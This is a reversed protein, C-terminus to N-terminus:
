GMRTRVDALDEPTDIGGPATDVVLAVIKMGDELARLQELKEAHELPSPALDVFRALAARRWAYIGVHHWIPIASGVAGGHPIPYRSFYLVPASVGPAPEQEGFAIAAKVVQPKDVEDDSALAVPTAIDADHHVLAQVLPRLMAADIDPLDGQLNVVIDIAGDPDIKQLAEYVRDSGSPHNPNTLVAIGGMGSVATEATVADAVRQDDCAVVVQGGNAGFGAELARRMVHVIMPADGIMALPKEPLRTAQMRAPIIVAVRNLIDSDDDILVNPRM